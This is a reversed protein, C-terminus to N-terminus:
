PRGEEKGPAGTVPKCCSQGKMTGMMDKMMTACGSSGEQGACCAGIMEFMRGEFGCCGSKTKDGTENKEETNM